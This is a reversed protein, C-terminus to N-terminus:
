NFLLNLQGNNNEPPKRNIKWRIRIPMLL